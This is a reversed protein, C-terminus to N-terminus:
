SFDSANSSLLKKWCYIQFGTFDIVTASCTSATLIMDPSEKGQILKGFNSCV